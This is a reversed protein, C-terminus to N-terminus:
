ATKIKIKRPRLEAAKPLKVTLVGHKLTAEVQDAGVRGPLTLTREFCGFARERRQWKGGSLEPEKREGRITVTNDDTMFIELDNLSFGPLEAELYFSHEDEWANLLPFAIPNVVARRDSPEYLEDLQSALQNFRNQLAFMPTYNLAFM